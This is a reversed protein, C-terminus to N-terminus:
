SPRCSSTTAVRALSYRPDLALRQWRGPLRSQFRPRLCDFEWVTGGGGIKWWEGGKWTEAALEMEPHEFPQSPDGPVTYFRWVEDGTESDYATVYGRVGFEAGGNGIFVKGNAVRPAGTITYFRDRDILTDVEWDLKGSEADLALLRGDLTGVYM